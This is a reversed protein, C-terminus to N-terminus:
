LMCSQKKEEELLPLSHTICYQTDYKAFYLIEALESWLLSHM